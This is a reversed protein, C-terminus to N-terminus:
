APLSFYFGAGRNLEGEAWVKGGHKSVIKEVIALGVGTGEFEDASHLRQFVKFLKNGYQNDFGVGNDKVFFVTQGDRTFSGIEICPHEKKGSYKVANSILNTWVQRILNIDGKMDPLPHVNWQVTNDQNQLVLGDIVEQVMVATHIGTKVIDQRGLRSFALLDDILNGMKTTNTKIISTIRKAEDDLKSSYDEELISTFGIIGRLPARLDHSVSYTFAELERNVSLLQEEAQKRQTIESRIAVYQYPKGEENLFPVITTDLWFFTGDKAKNNVEGKWVKGSGITEWLNRFFDKPHYGSNIIRHDQGILEERKYKSIRCFNDNVKKITGKQDTIVVIASEDLAYKYDSVEKISNKLDDDARKRETIDEVSHIIYIVEGKANLVPKNLPSWFREEFTGDPRRIDYKQIDMAHAAKTKLVTNLSARLKSVGDAKADDPNDPFVEFLYRGKIEERKTMTASLYEDSVAEIVLDPLLILYLGPASEFLTKFDAIEELSKRLAEEAKKRHSMGHIIFYASIVALLIIALYFGFLFRLSSNGSLAETAEQQVIVAWGYGPIQEYASLRNENAVPNYLVEVSKEGSLAKQVAPVSSYDIISDTEKYQPKAAVHGKQDVIYVFGSEGVSVEKSWEFLKPIDVQLVLIGRIKGADNKIPLAFASIINYPSNPRKYVESLYPQWNKTLGRYWDRDVYSEGKLAPSSPIDAMLTGATDAILVRTIYPFDKPVQKMLGIAADWNLEDVYRRLVPRTSFSLGMDNLRDLKEQLVRASLSALSRRNEYIRTITEKRTHWYSYTTVLLVPLVILAFILIKGSLKM